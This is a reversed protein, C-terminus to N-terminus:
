VSPDSYKQMNAIYRECILFRDCCFVTYQLQKDPQAAFHVQDNTGPIIGECTITDRTHYLLFPCRADRDNLKGSVPM